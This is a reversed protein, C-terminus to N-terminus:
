AGRRLAKQHLKPFLLFLFSFAMAKYGDQHDSDINQPPILKQRALSKPRIHYLTELLEAASRSLGPQKVLTHGGTTGPKSLGVRKWTPLAPKSEMALSTHTTGDGHPVQGSLTMPTPGVATSNNMIINKTLTEPGGAADGQAAM